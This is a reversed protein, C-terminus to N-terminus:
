VNEAKRKVIENSRKVNETKRKNKKLRKVNGEIRKQVKGLRKVNEAIRKFLYGFRKCGNVTRKSSNVIQKNQGKFPLANTTTKGKWTVNLPKSHVSAGSSTGAIGSSLSFTPGATTHEVSIDHWSCGNKAKESLNISPHTPKLHGQIQLLSALFCIEPHIIVYLHSSSSALM